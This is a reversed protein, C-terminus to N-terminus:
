KSTLSTLVAKTTKGNISQFWAKAQAESTIKQAGSYYGNLHIDRYKGVEFISNTLDRGISGPAGGVLTHEPGSNAYFYNPSYVGSSVPYYGILQLKQGAVEVNSVDVIHASDFSGDKVLPNAYSITATKDPNTIVIGSRKDGGGYDTVNGVAQWGPPYKLCLTSLPDCYQKWGDTHIISAAKVNDYAHQAAALKRAEIKEQRNLTDVKHQQSTYLITGATVGLVLICVSVFFRKM